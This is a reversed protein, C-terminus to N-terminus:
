YSKSKLDAMPCITEYYGVITKLINLDCDHTICKGFPQGNKPKYEVECFTKSNSRLMITM